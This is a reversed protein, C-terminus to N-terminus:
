VQCLPPLVLLIIPGTFVKLPVGIWLRLLVLAGSSILRCDPVEAVVSGLGCSSFVAHGLAQAACCFSAVAILLGQVGVPSYSGM